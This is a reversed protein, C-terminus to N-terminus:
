VADCFNGRIINKTKANLVKDWGCIEDEQLFDYCEPIEYFNPIKPSQLSKKSNGGGVSIEPLDCLFKYFYHFWCFIHFKEAEILQNSTLVFYKM